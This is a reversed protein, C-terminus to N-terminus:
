VGSTQTSEFRQYNHIPEEVQTSKGTSRHHSESGDKSMGTSKSTKEKPKSTSKPEKGARRRKSGRDSGDSPEE